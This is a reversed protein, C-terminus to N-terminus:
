AIAKSCTLSLSEDDKASVARSVSPEQQCPM